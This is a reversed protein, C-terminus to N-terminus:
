KRNFNWLLAVVLVSGAALAVIHLALSVGMLTAAALGVLIINTGFVRAVIQHPTLGNDRARQYFHSRHAQLIREGNFFRRVLTIATDALYYLPLLLAATLSGRGALLLLLWGLLLGIPLSGVDGLFLRATPRNFPAFGVVAGFLAVAVITGSLPLAGMFGFVVLGATLPVVEAVTMWDLGDMFNVLNVFWIGGVFFLCRELWWPFLSVVRLDDPLIFVVAAVALAQCILRPVIELVIIDDFAGIVALLVAAGLVVTLRLPEVQAIPGYYAALGIAVVIGAIVAIGGGQPTPVSHSSRANPRALAYRQMWPRLLLIFVTSTVAAVAFLELLQIISGTM